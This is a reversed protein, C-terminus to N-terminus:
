KIQKSWQMFDEIQENNMNCYRRMFDRITIGEEKRKRMFLSYTEDVTMKLITAIPQWAKYFQEKDKM